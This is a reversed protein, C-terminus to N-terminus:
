GHRGREVWSGERFIWERGTDTARLIEGTMVTLALQASASQMQAETCHHVTRGHYKDLDARLRAIEGICEHIVENALHACAHALPETLLEATHEATWRHWDGVADSYNNVM